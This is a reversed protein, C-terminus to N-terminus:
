FYGTQDYNLFRGYGFYTLPNNSSYDLNYKTNDNVKTIELPAFPTFFICCESCLKERPCSNPNHVQQFLVKVVDFDTNLSDQYVQILEDTVISYFSTYNKVQDISVGFSSAKFEVEGVATSQWYDQSINNFVAFSALLSLIILVISILGCPSLVISGRCSRAKM